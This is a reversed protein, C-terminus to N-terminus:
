AVREDWDIHHEYTRRMSKGRALLPLVIPLFLGQVVREVRGAAKTRNVKAAREIIEEVRPRRLTEFRRLAEPIPLDRLCRALMVGDEIVLSAGQGSSGSPAHAADGIVIMRQSHWHPLHPLYYIDTLPMLDEGAAILRAAPGADDAFFSALWDRLDGGTFTPGVAAPLNVFWWVEEASAAAYGFFGHKGFIMTVANPDARVPVGFTYGGSGTVGTHTPAPAQPDILGRVTSHIGDCGILLDGLAASGDAFIAQVGTATERADVLRKDYEFPIGRAAAENRVAEYLDTRRMTQSPPIDHRPSGTAVTGLKRGGASRLVMGPTPFGSALVRKDAGIAALADVGNTALTLFSGLGEAGSSHAEHVVADIGAQQLAMATVPGAIGGGIILAKTM